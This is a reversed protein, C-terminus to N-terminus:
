FGLVKRAVWERGAEPLWRDLLGWIKSGTGIIHGTGGKHIARDIAEAVVIPELAPVPTESLFAGAAAGM